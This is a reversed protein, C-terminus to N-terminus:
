RNLSATKVPRNITFNDSLLQYDILNGHADYTKVMVVDQDTLLNFADVGSELAKVFGKDHKGSLKRKKKQLAFVAALESFPKGVTHRLFGSHVPKEVVVPASLALNESQVATHPFRLPFYDDRRSIRIYIGATALMKVPVFRQIPMKRQPTAKHIKKEQKAKKDRVPNRRSKLNNKGSKGPKEIPAVPQKKDPQPYRINKVVVSSIVTNPINRKVPTAPLLWRIAFFLLLLAAAAWVGYRLYFVGAHKKLRNKNEFVVQKDPMLRVTGWQRYEEQLGPNQELFLSLEAKEEPSLEGDNSFVFYQTYNEENIPGAEMIEPHKLDNKAPFVVPEKELGPADAFLEFEEKYEPHLALFHLLMAKEEPSLKGDYFDVIYRGYNESNIKM